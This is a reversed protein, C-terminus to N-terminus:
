TKARNPSPSEVAPGASKLWKFKRKEARLARGPFIYYYKYDAYVCPTAFRQRVASLSIPHSLTGENASIVVGPPRRNLTFFSHFRLRGLTIRSRFLHNMLLFCFLADRFLANKEEPHMNGPILYRWKCLQIFM